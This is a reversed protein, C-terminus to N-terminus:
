FRQRLEVGYMRPEGYLVQHNSGNFRSFVYYSKDTLNRGILAVSTRGDETEVGVRGSLLIYGEQKNGPLNDPAFFTDGTYRVTGRATVYGFSVPVRLDATGEASWAPANELRNGTYSVVAGTVRAADPFRIYRTVLRSVSGSFVIVPSPRLTAEVEFGKIRAKGANSVQFLSVGQSNNFLQSVQKNDFTDYFGAASFNLLGDFLRGKAGAEFNLLKEPAFILNAPQNGRAAILETNFGGSKFGRSATAYFSLIPVPRYNINATWSLDEDHRRIDRFDYNFNINKQNFDARKRESTYRLGGTVTIEDTPHFDVNAFGAISETDVHTRTEYGNPLSGGIYTQRFAFAKQNFYYGGVVYRFLGRDPSSLRVEQSFFHSFDNFPGSRVSDIPLGDSDSYVVVNNRRFGTVSTLTPGDGNFVYDVTQSAGTSRLRNENSADLSTRLRSQLAGYPAGSGAYPPALQTLAFDTNNATHDATWYFNLGAPSNWVLQVRGGRRNVGDLKRGNFTNLVYGDRSTSSLTVGAFLNGTLPGSVAGKLIVADYNGYSGQLDARLADAPRDTIINIVGGTTNKGFLTGQPGRLVELQAINALDQNYGSTRGAFVGDIYLSVGSETGINRADGGVGRISIQNNLDGRPSYQLNPVSNQIDSVSNIGARRLQEGSFATISIPVDLLSEARKRATVVIDGQSTAAEANATDVTATAATQAVAPSAYALFALVPASIGLMRVRKASSASSYAKAISTM